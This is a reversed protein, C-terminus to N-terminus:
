QEKVGRVNRGVWPRGGGNCQLHAVEQKKVETTKGSTGYVGRKKVTGFDKFHSILWMPMGKMGVM